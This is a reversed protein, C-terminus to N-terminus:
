DESKTLRAIEARAQDRQAVLEAIVISQALIIQEATM